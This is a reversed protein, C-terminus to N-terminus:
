RDSTRASLVSRAIVRGSPIASARLVTKIDNRSRREQAEGTTAIEAITMLHRQCCPLNRAYASIAPVQGTRASLVSRAIVRGSIDNRSRREQVEGTTAIEAITM